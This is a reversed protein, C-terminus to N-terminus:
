KGDENEETKLIYVFAKLLLSVAHVTRVGLDIYIDYETKEKTFDTTIHADISKAHGTNNIIGLIPFIAATLKGYRVATDAASPTAVAINLKIKEFRFKDLFPPILNLLDLYNDFKLAFLKKKFSDIFGGSNKGSEKEPKKEKPKEEKNEPKKDQKDSLLDITFFAYKLKLILEDTKNYGAIVRAKASLIILLLLAILGIISGVAILLIKLILLIISM